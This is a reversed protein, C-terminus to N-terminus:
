FFYGRNFSGGEKLFKKGTGGKTESGFISEQEVINLECPVLLILSVAGSKRRVQLM